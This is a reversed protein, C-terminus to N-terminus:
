IRGRRQKDAKEREAAEVEYLARWWVLERASMGHMLGAHTMKLDRALVFEFRDPRTKDKFRRRRRGYSM